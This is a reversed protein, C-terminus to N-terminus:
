VLPEDESTGPLSIGIDSLFLSEEVPGLTSDKPIHQPPPKAREGEM